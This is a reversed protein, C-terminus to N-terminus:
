KEMNKYANEFEEIVLDLHKLTLDQHIPLGFLRTKLYVADPFENWPIAPHFRDWWPHTIIGKRKLIMYMKERQEGSDLIIPFFLPCVGPPLKTFPLIGRGNNLFHNLLYEFNRRRIIKIEEFDTKNIIKKSLDSIGWSRLDEIFLYSDPKVLYLGKPNFYKRFGALMLRVSSMSLYVGKYLLSLINENISNNGGKTKQKLLEAAYFSTVFLNPKEPYHNYKINLNNILLLGGNPVPLTKLLSFISVDGYSGLPKENHTSLLAHACDEILLLKKQTCIQKIQDLPQPFGLFHTVLVAKVDTTVRNVLDDCDVLFNKGIRYFIPKISLNLVPDIEAGCNYSPLLVVDGPGLGLARLGGELAYRASFYYFCKEQNLPFINEGNWKQGFLQRVHFTPKGGIYLAM